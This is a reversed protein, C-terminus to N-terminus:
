RDELVDRVIRALRSPTFPKQLFAANRSQMRHRVGESDAYGSMFLVKIGPRAAGVRDALETGDLGPMVVDTLLLDITQSESNSIRLAEEPGAAELIHYGHRELLARVLMRVEVEDEVLLITGSGTQVAEARASEHVPLPGPSIAPLYISFTAGRGPESELWIEGGAQKVIGYVISLGLGTGKGPEKTTFFPEYLHAKTAADMGHGTDAIELVVYPGPPLGLHHLHAGQDLNMTRLTLRGGDPMADRANVSLNMIVQEIQAPDVRVSSLNPAPLTVLDIDEGLMSRLMKEVGRILENLEVVKPFAVQRRSFALLRSTLAAARDSAHLVEEACGRLYASLSGDELLIQAYGSVVTLLNNFDHAIGGALRGVAEMKQAQRLQAELLKRSTADRLSTLYAPRGDWETEIVRMETSIARDPGIPIDLEATEGAVLPHGLFQGVLEDSDRGFLRAAAPNAFRVCGDVGIIVVGDANRNIANRFRADAAEAQQKWFQVQSADSTSGGLGTKFEDLVTRDDVKPM